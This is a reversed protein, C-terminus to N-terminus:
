AVDTRPRDHTKTLAEQVRVLDAERQELEALRARNRAINGSFNALHYAPFQGFKCAYPQFQICSLLVRKENETLLSLDGHNGKAKRATANYAKIREREAELNTLRERMRQAGDTDDRYISTDLQHQIGGAVSVHHAAMAQSELGKSMGNHIRDQDRRAHGESHHGVLIPQGFPIGDVIRAVGAFRAEAKRKRSAAWDLRREMRAEKRERYTM